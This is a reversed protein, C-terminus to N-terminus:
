YIYTFRLEGEHQRDCYVEHFSTSEVNLVCESPSEGLSVSICQGRCQNFESIARSEKLQLRVFSYGATSFEVIEGVQGVVSNGAVTAIVWDNSRM